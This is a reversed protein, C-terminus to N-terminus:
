RIVDKVPVLKIGDEIIVPDVVPAVISISKTIGKRVLSRLSRLQYQDVEVRDSIVVSKQEDQSRIMLDIQTRGRVEFFTLEPRPQGSYEYHSLTENIILITRATKENAGLYRAIAADLIYYRPFGSSGLQKNPRIETIVFLSQLALLHKGIKRSDQGLERAIDAQSSKPSQAITHLIERALIGDYRAGHLQNLDRMCVAQLWEEILNARETADRFQCIAPMGGREIWSQIDSQTPSFDKPNIQALESLTLPYLRCIAIRGTLTERVGQAATFEVSGTLLVIGRNRKEDALVKLANFLNPAKQAEDIIIPTTFESTRSLIFSEGARKAERLLEQRDLTYYPINDGKSIIDRLLTSKGTQRAGLIGVLPLIKAKKNIINALLRNRIHM